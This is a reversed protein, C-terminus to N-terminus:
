KSQRLKKTFIVQDTDLTNIERIIKAVFFITLVSYNNRLLLKQHSYTIIERFNQGFIEFTQCFHTISEYM